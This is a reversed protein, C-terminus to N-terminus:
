PSSIKLESLLKSNLYDVDRGKGTAAARSYVPCDPFWAYFTDGNQIAGCLRAIGLRRQEVGVVILLLDERRGERDQLFRNSPAGKRGGRNGSSM